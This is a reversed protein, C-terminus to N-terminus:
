RLFKFFYQSFLRRLWFSNSMKEDTEECLVWHIIPFHAWGQPTISHVAKPHSAMYLRPTHRQTCGQHTINGDQELFGPCELRVTKIEDRATNTDELMHCVLVEADEVGLFSDQLVVPDCFM